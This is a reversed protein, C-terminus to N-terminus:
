ILIKPIIFPLASVHCCPNPRMLSKGAMHVRRTMGFLHRSKGIYLPGQRIGAKRPQLPERCRQCLIRRDQAAMRLAIDVPDHSGFGDAAPMLQIGIRMHGGARDLSGTAANTCCDRSHISDHRAIQGIGKHCRARGAVM